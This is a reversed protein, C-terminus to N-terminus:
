PLVCAEASQGPDAPCQEISTTAPAAQGQHPGTREVAVSPSDASIETAPAAAGSTGPEGAPSAMAQRDPAAESFASGTATASTDSAVNAAGSAGTAGANATAHADSAASASAGMEARAAQLLGFPSVAVVLALASTTAWRKLRKREDHM